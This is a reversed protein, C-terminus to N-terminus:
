GCIEISLCIEKKLGFLEQIHYRGSELLLRPNRWALSYMAANAMVMSRTIPNNLLNKVWKGGCYVRPKMKKITDLFENATKLAMIEEKEKRSKLNKVQSLAIISM